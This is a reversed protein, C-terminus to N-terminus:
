SFGVQNNWVGYLPTWSILTEHTGGLKREKPPGIIEMQANPLIAWRATCYLVVLSMTNTNTTGIIKLKASGSEPFYISHFM